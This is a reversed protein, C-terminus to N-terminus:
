LVGARSGDDSCQAGCMGDGAARRVIGGSRFYRSKAGTEVDNIYGCSETLRLLFAFPYLNRRNIRDGGITM